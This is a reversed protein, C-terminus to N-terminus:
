ATAIYERLAQQEDEMEAVRHKVVDGISVIGALRGQDLVPLHRFRGTTMETMVSQITAAEVTTVVNETMSQSVPESLAGAGRLAISQVIDRESIIGALAGSEHTVVLAGLRRDCLLRVAESLTRDPSITVVDRGKGALIRRVTM